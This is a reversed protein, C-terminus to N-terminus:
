LKKRSDKSGPNSDRHLHKLLACKTQESRVYRECFWESGQKGHIKKIDSLFFPFFQVRELIRPTFLILLSGVEGGGGRAGYVFNLESHSSLFFLRKVVGQAIVNAIIL